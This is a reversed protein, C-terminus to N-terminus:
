SVERIFIKEGEEQRIAFVSGRILYAKPEGLVATATCMIETGEIIGLDFMRRKLAEPLTINTVIGKQLPNLENISKM